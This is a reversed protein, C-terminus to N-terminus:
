LVSRYNSGITKYETIMVTVFHNSFHSLNAVLANESLDRFTTHKRM